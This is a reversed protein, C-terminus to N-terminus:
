LPSHGKIKVTGPMNLEGEVQIKAPWSKQIVWVNTLLHQTIRSTRIESNGPTFALPLVLQDALYSDVAGNTNLFSEFENVAEDAVQEASKGKEGLSYYCCQSHEFQGMIFLISGQVHSVLNQIEIEVNPNIKKLRGLAQDRQREAISEPLNAVASFGKIKKLRGRKNIKIPHFHYHPEIKAWMNGGGKPFFGALESELEILLGIKKAFSLWHYKLYEFCPSWPVHTGGSIKLQSAAPAFSLPLYITQFVLSTSGATGIKFEFNGSGIGRPFFSIKESDLRLGEVRAEGIRRAAEVSQIHQPRLGPKSRGARINSIELGRGSILSIALATRLIQGGGEGYSGDLSIIETM